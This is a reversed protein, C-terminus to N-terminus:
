HSRRSVLHGGEKAEGPFEYRGTKESVLESAAADMAFVFDTGPEYGAEEVAEKLYWFAEEANKLDPAFGGEDGVAASLGEKALLLKLKHYVEVGM